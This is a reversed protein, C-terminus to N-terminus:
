QIGRKEGHKEVWDGWSLYLWRETETDYLITPTYTDGMNVYLLQTDHWYQSVYNGRISEVGYGGIINSIAKLTNYPDTNQRILTKVQKVQENTLQLTKM